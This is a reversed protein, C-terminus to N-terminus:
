YHLMWNLKTENRREFWITWEYVTDCYANKTIPRHTYRINSTIYAYIYVYIFYGFMREGAMTEDMRHRTFFRYICFLLKGQLSFRLFIALKAIVLMTRIWAYKKQVHEEMLFTNSGCHYNTGLRWIARSYIISLRRDTPKVMGYKKDWVTRRRHFNYIGPPRKLAQLL